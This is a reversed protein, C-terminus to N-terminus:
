FFILSFKEIFIYDDLYDIREKEKVKRETDERYFFFLHRSKWKSIERKKKKSRKIIVHPNTSRRMGILFNHFHRVHFILKFNLKNVKKIVIHM